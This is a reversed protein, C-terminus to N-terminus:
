TLRAFISDAPLSLDVKRPKRIIKHSTNHPTIQNDSPNEFNKKTNHINQFDKTLINTNSISINQFFRYRIM